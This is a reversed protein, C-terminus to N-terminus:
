KEEGKEKVKQILLSLVTNEDVEKGDLVAALVKQKESLIVAIDEEVTNQAVLTWVNVVNKQGIRHLRDSAQEYDGPTWPLEVFGVNSAATLTIGVGAAKINGLFLRIEDDNQFRDVAEQRGGQSTSGDLRVSIKPFAKQLLDLTLTHTAFLVLKEGSELFDTVWEKIAEIKGTTALQKLKEFEVLVEAQSAKDAKEKGENKLIWDVINSAAKDYEKRNEIEFPVVGYIKDPLDKLVDRKLRRIMITETLLNHLKNTNTAGTFDWGFGNHRAGCFEHAFRWFSPFVDPRIMNISNFFEIPRNVIPTGSLGIVHSTKKALRKAASTRQAGSNKTYHIEDMIIVKPNYNMVAELWPTLIDYNIIIIQGTLLYGNKKGSIIQIKEEKLGWLELERKWNIKLSAPCVIVVPRLEPHLCLWSIAQATKGLGMEDAILARGKRSEIFAVGTRQFSFLRSDLSNLPLCKEDLPKTLDDLWNQLGSSFEFGWEKLKKGGELSLGVRWYKEEAIWRHDPLTKIKAVTEGFRGDGKAFNFQVKIGSLKNDKTLLSAMMCTEKQQTPVFPKLPLPNVGARLLQNVYKKLAKKVFVLQRPTLFGKTKYFKVIDTLVEADLRNFGCANLHNTTHSYQEDMTQFEYLRVLGGVAWEDSSDILKSLEEHTAPQKREQAKDAIQNM